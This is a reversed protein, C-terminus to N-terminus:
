VPQQTSGLIRATTKKKQGEHLKEELNQGVHLKRAERKELSRWFLSLSLSFHFCFCFYGQEYKLNKPLVKEPVYKFNKLLLKKLFILSKQTSFPSAFSIM